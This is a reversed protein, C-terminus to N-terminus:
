LEKPQIRKKFNTSARKIHSLVVRAGGGTAIGADDGGLGTVGNVGDGTFFNGKILCNVGLM